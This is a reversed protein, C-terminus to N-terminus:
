DRERKPCDAGEATQERGADHEACSKGGGSDTFETTATSPTTSNVLEKNQFKTVSLLMRGKHHQHKTDHQSQKLPTVVGGMVGMLRNATADSLFYKEDVEKELIDSLTFGSVIKPYFGAQILCNGSASMYGLTPLKECSQKLTKDKTAQLCVKSTKLSLFVPDCSGLLVCRKLSYAAEVAQLVQGSELLRCIKARFDSLLLTLKDSNKQSSEQSAESPFLMQSTDKISKSRM